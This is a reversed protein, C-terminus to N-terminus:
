GGTTYQKSDHTIRKILGAKGDSLYGHREPERILEISSLEGSHWAKAGENGARNAAVARACSLCNARVIVEVSSDRAILRFIAM